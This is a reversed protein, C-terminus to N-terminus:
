GLGIFKLLQVETTKVEATMGALELLGTVVAALWLLRFLVSVLNWHNM